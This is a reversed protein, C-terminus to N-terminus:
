KYTFMTKLKFSSEFNISSNWSCSSNNSFSSVMWTNCSKVTKSSQRKIAIFCWASIYSLWGIFKSIIKVRYILNTLAFELIWVIWLGTIIFAKSCIWTIYPWGLRYLVWKWLVLNWKNICFDKIFLTWTTSIVILPM